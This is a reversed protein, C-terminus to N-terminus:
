REAETEDVIAWGAAKSKEGAYHRAADPNPYFETPHDVRRPLVEVYSRRGFVRDPRVYITPHFSVIEAM